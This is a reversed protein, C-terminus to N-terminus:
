MDTRDDPEDREQTYARPAEIPISDNPLAHPGPLCYIFGVSRRVGWIDRVYFRAFVATRTWQSFIPITVIHRSQTGAGFNDFWKRKIRYYPTNPVNDANCFGWEIRYLHAPTKGHNNLHIDFYETAEHIIIQNGGADQVVANAPIPTTNAVMRQTIVRAGGGSVYAREIERTHEVIKATAQAQAFAANANTQATKASEKAIGVWEEMHSAHRRLEYGQWVGICGLVFTALFLFATFVELGRTYNALRCAYLDSQNNNQPQADNNGSRSVDTGNPNRGEVISGSDPNQQKATSHQQYEACSDAQLLNLRASPPLDLYLGLAVFGLLVLLACATCYQQQRTWM